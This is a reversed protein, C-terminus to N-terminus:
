KQQSENLFIDVLPKLTKYGYKVLKEDREKKSNKSGHFMNDRIARWFEIMNEWDELSHLVGRIKNKEEDTQQNLENHSCNWWKIEEVSNLSSANGLRAKNLEDIIKRWSEKENDTLSSLYKQKLDSDQKLKQLVGRDNNSDPYKQTRLYTIFALYEFVFKSFYDEDSAKTYWNKISDLYEM